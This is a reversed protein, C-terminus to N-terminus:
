TWHGEVWYWGHHNHAWHGEVWRDHHTKKWHGRVWVYARGEWRHHGAVWVYGSGPAVGIEERVALPPPTPV